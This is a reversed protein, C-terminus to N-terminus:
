DENEEKPEIFVDVAIIRQSNVQQVVFKINEFVFKAKRRPITQFHELVFGGVTVSDTEVDDPDIQAIEFLNELPMDGSVIYQTDSIKTFDNEIEEDEDWIDGM